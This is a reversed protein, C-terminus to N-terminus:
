LTIILLLVFVIGITYLIHSHFLIILDRDSLRNPIDTDLLVQSLICLDHNCDSYDEYNLYLNDYNLQDNIQNYTLVYGDVFYLMSIFLVFYTLYLIYTHIKDRNM